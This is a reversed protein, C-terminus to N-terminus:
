GRLVPPDIVRSVADAPTFMTGSSRRLADIFEIVESRTWDHAYAIRTAEEVEDATWPWGRRLREGEIVQM